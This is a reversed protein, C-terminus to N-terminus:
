PTGHTFFTQPVNFAPAPWNAREHDGRRRGRSSEYYRFNDTGQNNLPSTDITASLLTSNSTIKINSLSNPLDHYHNTAQLSKFFQPLRRVVKTLTCGTTWAPLLQGALCQSRSNSNLEVCPHKKKANEPATSNWTPLPHLGVLHRLNKLM